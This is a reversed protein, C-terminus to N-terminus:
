TCVNCSVKCRDLVDGKCYRERRNKRDIWDCPKRRSNVSKNKNKKVKFKFGADNQCPEVDNGSFQFVRSEDKRVGNGPATFLLREPYSFSFAVTARKTYTNADLSSPLAGRSKIRHIMNWNDNQLEYIQVIALLDENDAPQGIVTAAIRSGNNNM